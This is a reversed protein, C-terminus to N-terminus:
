GNKTNCGQWLSRYKWFAPHCSSQISLASSITWVWNLREYPDKSVLQALEWSVWSSLGLTHVRLKGSYIIHENVAAETPHPTMRQWTSSCRQCGVQAELVWVQPTTHHIPYTNLCQDQAHWQHVQRTTCGCAHKGGGENSLLPNNIWGLYTRLDWWKFFFKITESIMKEAVETSTSHVKLWPWSKSECM